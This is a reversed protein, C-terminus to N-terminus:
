FSCLLGSLFRVEAQREDEQPSQKKLPTPHTSQNSHNQDASGQDVHAGTGAEEEKLGQLDAYPVTPWSSVSM